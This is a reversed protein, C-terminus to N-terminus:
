KSVEDVKGTHWAARARGWSHKMSLALDRAGRQLVKRLSRAQQRAGTAADGADDKVVDINDEVADKARAGAAQAAGVGAELGNRVQTSVKSASAALSELKKSETKTTSNKM